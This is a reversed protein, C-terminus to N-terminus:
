SYCQTNRWGAIVIIETTSLLMDITLADITPHRRIRVEAAAALCIMM